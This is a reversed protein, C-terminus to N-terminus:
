GTVIHVEIALDTAPRRASPAGDGGGHWSSCTIGGVQVRWKAVQEGACSQVHYCPAACEYPAACMRTGSM